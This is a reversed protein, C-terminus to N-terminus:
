IPPWGLRAYLALMWSMARTWAGLMVAAGMVVLVFGGFIELKRANRHLWRLRVRGRAITTALGLFPLGLGLSYATLLIAGQWMTHTTAATALIGALVPGVCPTWGLAFAAGLPLAARPGTGIRALDLRAPRQLLPIRLLGIGVLGMVIIFAGSVLHLLRANQALMLGLRTATLGLAVFVITFGLVFLVAGSMVRARGARDAALSGPTMGSVFSVYGPLLPLTCPATFSVLGAVLALSALAFTTM